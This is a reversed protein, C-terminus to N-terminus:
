SQAECMSLFQQAGERLQTNTMRQLDQMVQELVLALRAVALQSDVNQLGTDPQASSAAGAQGDEYSHLLETVTEHLPVLLEDMM